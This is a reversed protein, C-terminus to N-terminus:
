RLGERLLTALERTLTEKTVVRNCRGHVHVAGPADLRYSARIIRAIIRQDLLESPESASAMAGPPVPAKPWPKKLEGKFFDSLLRDLEDSPETNTPSTNM